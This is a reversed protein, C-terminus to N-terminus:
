TGQLPSRSNAESIRTEWAYHVWVEFNDERMFLRRGLAGDAELWLVSNDSTVADVVGQDVLMCNVRIQVWRGVLTKWDDHPHYPV